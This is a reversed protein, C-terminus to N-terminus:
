IKTHFFIKFNIKLDPGTASAVSVFYQSEGEYDGGASRCSNTPCHSRGVFISLTLFQIRTFVMNEVNAPYPNFGM